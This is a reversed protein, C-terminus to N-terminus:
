LSCEWFKEPDAGTREQIIAANYGYGHLFFHHIDYIDRGAIHGTKNFRDVIAVLKHAFMTEKTQCNLIRDIESFRQAQYISSRFLPFAVEVKLNNRRLNKEKGGQHEYKLFYQIGNKSCDKVSLGIKNFLNELSKRTQAVDKTETKGAYDFDLDVSFRDLWGLMSACTGGKFYLVGALYSDDAIAELIRYLWAKHVADKKDPLIMM